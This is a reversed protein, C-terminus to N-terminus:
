KTAKERMLVEKVDGECWLWVEEGGKIGFSSLGKEVEWECFEVGKGNQIGQETVNGIKFARISGCIVDQVVREHSSLGLQILSYSDKSILRKLMDLSIDLTPISVSVAKSFLSSLPLNRLQNETM